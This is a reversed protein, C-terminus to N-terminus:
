NKTQKKDRENGKVEKKDKDREDRDGSDSINVGKAKLALLLMRYNGSQLQLIASNKGANVTLWNKKTRMFFVPLAAVGFAIAGLTAATYRPRDSYTYDASEIEAFPIYKTEFPKKSRRITMRDSELSIEVTKSEVSKGSGVLMEAKYVPQNQSRAPLQSTVLVSLILLINLAKM